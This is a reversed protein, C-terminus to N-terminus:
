LDQEINQLVTSLSALFLTPLSQKDSRTLDLPRKKIAFGCIRITTLVRNLGGHCNKMEVIPSPAAARPLNARLSLLEYWPDGERGDRRKSIPVLGM